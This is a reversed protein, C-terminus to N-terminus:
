KEPQKTNEEIYWETTIGLHQLQRLPALEEKGKHLNKQLLALAEVVQLYAEEQQRDQHKQYQLFVLLSVLIVALSAAIKGYISVPKKRKLTIKSPYEKKFDDLASFFEKENHHEPSRRILERLLTEEQLSTKGKWYKELLKDLPEQM